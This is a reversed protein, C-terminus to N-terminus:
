PPLPLPPWPLQRRAGGDVCVNAVLRASGLLALLGGSGRYFGLLLLSAASTAISPEVVVGTSLLYKIRLLTHPFQGAECWSFMTFEYTTQMYVNEFSVRFQGTKLLAPLTSARAM